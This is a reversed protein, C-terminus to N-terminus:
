ASRAASAFLRCPVLAVFFRDRTAPPPALGHRWFPVPRARWPDVREGWHRCPPTTNPGFPRRYLCRMGALIRWAANASASAACAAFPRISMTSSIRSSPSRGRARSTISQSARTPSVPRATSTVASVSSRTPRAVAFRLSNPRRVGPVSRRSSMRPASVTRTSRGASSPSAARAVTPLASHADLPVRDQDAWDDGLPRHALGVGAAVREGDGLARRVTVDGVGDRIRELDVDDGHVDNVHGALRPPESPADPMSGIPLLGDDRDALALSDLLVEHLANLLAALAICPSM